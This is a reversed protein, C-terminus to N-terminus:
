TDAKDPKNPDIPKDNSSLTKWPANSNGGWPSSNGGWGQKAPLLRSVLDIIAMTKKLVNVVRNWMTKEEGTPLMAIVTAAIGYLVTLFVGTAQWDIDALIM